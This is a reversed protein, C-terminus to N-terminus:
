VENLNKLFRSLYKKQIRILRYEYETYNQETSFQVIVYYGDPDAQGIKTLPLGDGLPIHYQCLCRWTERFTNSRTFYLGTYCFALTPADIVKDSIINLHM